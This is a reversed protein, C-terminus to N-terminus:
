AMFDDRRFTLLTFLINAMTLKDHFDGNCRGRCHGYISAVELGAEEKRWFTKPLSPAKKRSIHFLM